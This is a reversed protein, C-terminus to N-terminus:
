ESMGLEEIYIPIWYIRWCMGFCIRALWGLNDTWGFAGAIGEIMREYKIGCYINAVLIHALVKGLM